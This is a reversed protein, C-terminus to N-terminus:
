KYTKIRKPLAFTRFYFSVVFHFARRFSSIECLCPVEDARNTGFLTVYRYVLCLFFVISHPMKKCRFLFGNDQVSIPQSM